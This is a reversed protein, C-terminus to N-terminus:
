NGMYENIDYAAREIASTIHGADSSISSAASQALGQIGYIVQKGQEVLSRACQLNQEAQYLKQRAADVARRLEEEHYSNYNDPDQYNRYSEYEQEAYYLDDRCEACRSEVQHYLGMLESEKPYVAQAVSSLDNSLASAASSIGSRLAYLDNLQKVQADSAM